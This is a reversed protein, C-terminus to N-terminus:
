ARRVGRGNEFEYGLGKLYAAELDGNHSLRRGGFYEYGWWSSYHDGTAGFCDFGYLTM